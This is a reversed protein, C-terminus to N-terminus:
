RNLMYDKFDSYTTTMSIALKKKNLVEKVKEPIPVSIDLAEISDIFKSPHATGLVVVKSGSGFNKIYSMAGLYGVAGHPDLIYGCSDYVSKLAELTQNDSYSWSSIEQNIKSVSGKYIANIRQINSPNGVDMANSLTEISPKPIFVKDSLYKPFVDNINTSAIFNSIDFGMKKAFIGATLNGFNGSPVSCVIKDVHKLSNVYYFSQPILRSINISNASSINLSKRLDQDVFASKVLRQCDDFSGDVELATINKGNTTLQKEQIKSVKNKPYLIVVDIGEVDLFGSAVASGTDGSTAVLITLAKGEIAVFHEMVRAMFRAGFDKFALTPGHFLELVEINGNISVLPAEFSLTRNMIEALKTPGIEDGVFEKSINYGIEQLSLDKLNYRSAISPIETPMYLGRDRPMGRMVAEKFSVTESNNKTSYYLM